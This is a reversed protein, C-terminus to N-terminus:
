VESSEIIKKTICEACIDIEENLTAAKEIKAKNPCNDYDDCGTIFQYKLVKKITEKMLIPNLRKLDKNKINEM